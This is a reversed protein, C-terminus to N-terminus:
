ALALLRLAVPTLIFLMMVMVLVANAVTRQSGRATQATIYRATEADRMEDAHARLTAYVAGSEDGALRMIKALEALDPLDLDAALDEFRDWPTQGQLRSAVLAESLRQFPWSRGVDAAHELAQRPAAGSHRELAVLTVFTSLAQAFEARRARARSRLRVVPLFSVAVGIGVSGIVPVSVPVPLGVLAAVATVTAPTALGALAYGARQGWMRQPSVEMVALDRLLDARLRGALPTRLVLGGLRSCLASSSSEPSAPAAPRARSAALYSALDPQAPVVYWVLATVAAGLLLGTLLSLQLLSM